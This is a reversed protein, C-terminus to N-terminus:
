LPDLDLTDPRGPCGDISLSLTRRVTCDMPFGPVFLRYQLATGDPHPTPRCYLRLLMLTQTPVGDVYNFPMLSLDDPSGPGHWRCFPDPTGVQTEVTRSGLIFTGNMNDCPGGEACRTTVGSLGEMTYTWEDPTTDNVCSPCTEGCDCKCLGEIAWWLGNEEFCLVVSGEVLFKQPQLNCIFDYRETETYSLMQAGVTKPFTVAKLERAYYVNVGEGPEPYETADPGAATKFFRWERAAGGSPRGTRLGYDTPM